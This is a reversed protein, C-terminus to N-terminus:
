CLTLISLQTWSGRAAVSNLPWYGASVTFFIALSLRGSTAVERRESGQSGDM